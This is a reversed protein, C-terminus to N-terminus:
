AMAGGDVDLVQGTVYRAGDSLLFAVVPAVDDAEGVRRLPVSRAYEAFSPAQAATMDTRLLGPAVANVRIGRPGLEHALSRVAGEIGSKAASYAVKGPLGRRALNSSLFVLAAGAGIRDAALLARCLSLPACLDVTLQHEIPDVGDISAAEFPAPVAVGANFVAGSLQSPLEDAFASFSQAQLDLLRPTFRDGLERQLAEALARSQRYTGCVANGAGALTRVVAAGVGRTAGTVLIVVHAGM